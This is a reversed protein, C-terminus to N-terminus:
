YEKFILRVLRPYLYYYQYLNQIDLLNGVLSLTRSLRVSALYTSVQRTVKTSLAILGAYSGGLVLPRM